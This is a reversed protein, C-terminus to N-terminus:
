HWHHPLSPTRGYVMGYIAKMDRGLYQALVDTEVEVMEAFEDVSGSHFREVYERLSMAHLDIEEWTGREVAKEMDLLFIKQPHDTVRVMGNLTHVVWVGPEALENFLRQGDFEGVPTFFRSLPNVNYQTRLM